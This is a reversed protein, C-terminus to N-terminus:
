GGGGVRRVSREVRLRGGPLVDSRRLATAEGFRLGGLALVPLLARYRETRRDKGLQEALQLAEAATLARSPRSTKPTGAGRLRCPNCAIAEDAVAVNLIARLLRYAQTLATSGTTRRYRLHVGRRLSGTAAKPPAAGANSVLRLNRRERRTTPGSNESIVSLCVAQV